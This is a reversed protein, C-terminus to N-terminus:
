EDKLDKSMKDAIQELSNSMISINVMLSILFAGVIIFVGSWIFLFGIKEINEPLIDWRFLLDAISLIGFVCMMIILIYALFTCNDAIKRKDFQLKM